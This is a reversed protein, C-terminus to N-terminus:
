SLVVLVDGSEVATGKNVLLQKVVGARSAVIDVEMKMAELIVLIEGHAVQQGVAVKIAWINGPMPSLINEEPLGSAVPAIPQFVPVAEVPAPSTAAPVVPIAMQPTASAAAQVTVDFLQNNIMVQYKM